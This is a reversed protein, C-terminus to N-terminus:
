CVEEYYDHLTFGLAEMEEHSMCLIHRLIDYLDGDSFRTNLFTVIGDVLEREREPTITRTTINM